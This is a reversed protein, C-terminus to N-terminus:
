VTSLRKGAAAFLGDPASEPILLRLAQPVVTVTFPTEAIPDGDCHFPIAPTTRVTVHRGRALTLPADERLHQGTAVLFLHRWADRYRRGHLMMVEFLGDDLRGGPNFRLNGAYLRSNNISVILFQGQYCRGDVEVETEMGPFDRAHWICKLAYAAKGLRRIRKSRPEIVRVLFGDLGAGAWLLWPRGPEARGVDMRCVRGGALAQAAPLLSHRPWPGPRPLNLETAFSNATGSPLIGLVSESGQLGAAVEGLTGDGGAALVLLTGRAAAEAALTTAHGAHETAVITVDWGQDRWFTAAEEIAGRLRLPGALPNYILLASDSVLPVM